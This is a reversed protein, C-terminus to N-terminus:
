ENLNTEQPQKLQKIIIYDDLGFQESWNQETWNQKMRSVKIWCDPYLRFGYDIIAPTYNMPSMTKFHCWQHKSVPKYEIYYERKLLITKQMHKRLASYKM